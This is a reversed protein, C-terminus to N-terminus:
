SELLGVIEDKEMKPVKEILTERFNTQATLPLKDWDVLVTSLYKLEKDILRHQQYDNVAPSASVNSDVPSKPATLRNILLSKVPSLRTYRRNALLFASGLFQLLKATSSALLLALLLSTLKM